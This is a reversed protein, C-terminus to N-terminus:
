LTFFFTAGKEVEGQAWIRGSHRSIIRDVTALGIGIGPFESEKHLRRFPKFLKDAFEMLFGAGDDRVFYVNKGEMQTAGFEIKTTPHKDTFKWANDLLNELVARLMDNDGRVKIGPAIIFEVQREPQKKRLEYAIVEALESLNVTKDRLEGRTLRAIKLMADILQSMRRSASVVRNFYDKGTEDLTLACDELIATTFGEISRLPAKLDHSVAYSFVELERNVADLEYARRELEAHATQLAKEAKIREVIEWSLEGLLMAIEVDIANYDTPKNGVGIIATIRGGRLIPVVMERNVPAHGPPLGRRLPLSAYDNHIVPRRERV